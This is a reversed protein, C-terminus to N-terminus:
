ANQSICIELFMFSPTRIVTGVKDVWFVLISGSYVCQYM